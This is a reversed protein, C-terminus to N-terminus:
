NVEMFIPAPTMTVALLEHREEYTSIREQHKVTNRNELAQVM